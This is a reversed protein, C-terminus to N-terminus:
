GGDALSAGCASRRATCDGARDCFCREYARRSRAGSLNWETGVEGRSGDSGRVADLRDRVLDLTGDKVGSSSSAYLRRAFGVTYTSAVILWVLFASWVDHSMFHAGRAQQALGFVLGCGIGIFLAIRALVRSRERLAFYLAILAYGSSSHAAPFCSGARLDDPRNAFLQVLPFRGGFISLDWPCDVNTVTKLVGIIGVSLVAAIVFYGAPRRLSRWRSDAFSTMWIAIGVAIIGRVAWRGGTHIFSEVWWNHSGIWRGSTADFFFTTAITVDLDTTGFLPALLAFALLPWRVERWWIQRVCSPM